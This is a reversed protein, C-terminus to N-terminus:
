LIGVNSCLDRREAFLPMLLTNMLCVRIGKGRAWYVKQVKFEEFAKTCARAVEKNKAMLVLGSTVADLRHVIRLRDYGREKLISQLSNKFYRGGAHMPM